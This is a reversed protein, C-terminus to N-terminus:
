RSGRPSRVVTRLSADPCTAAPSTVATIPGDPQPLDVSMWSREPLSLGLEPAM